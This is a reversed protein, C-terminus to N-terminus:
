KDRNAYLYNKPNDTFEDLEGPEMGFKTGGEKSSHRSLVSKLSRPISEDSLNRSTSFEGNLGHDLMRNSVPVQNDRVVEKLGQNAVNINATQFGHSNQNNSKMKPETSVGGYSSAVTPESAGSANSGERGQNKLSQIRAGQSPVGLHLLTMSSEAKKQSNKDTKSAQSSERSQVAEFVLVPYANSLTTNASGTDAAENLGENQSSRNDPIELIPKEGVFKETRKTLSTDTLSKGIKLDTRIKLSKEFSLSKSVQLRSSDPPKLDLRIITETKLKSHKNQAEAEKNSKESLNSHSKTVPPIQTKPTLAPSTIQNTEVVFTRKLSDISVNSMERGPNSAEDPTASARNPFGTGSGISSKEKEPQEETQEVVTDGKQKKERESIVSTEPKLHADLMAAGDTIIVDSYPTNERSVELAHISGVESADRKPTTLGSDPNNKPPNGSVTVETEPIAFNSNAVLPRRHGPRATGLRRSTMPPSMPKEPLLEQKPTSASGDSERSSRDSVPDPRLNQEQNVASSKKQLQDRLANRAENTIANDRPTEFDFDSGEEELVTQPRNTVGHSPIYYPASPGADSFGHLDENTRVLPQTGGQFSNHISMQAKIKQLLERSINNGALNIDRLHNPFDTLLQLITLGTQDTINTNELDLTVLSKSASIAVILLCAAHDGIDNFYLHLSRLCSNDAIAMSFHQWGSSTIGPNSGLSLDELSDRGKDNPLVSSLHRLGVDGLSCNTMDVTRITPHLRIARSLMAVDDSALPTGQLFIATLGRNLNLCECFTQVRETSSLVGDSINLSCLSRCIGVSSCIRRFGQDDLNVGQMSLSRVANSSLANGLEKVDDM